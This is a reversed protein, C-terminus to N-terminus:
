QQRELQKLLKGSDILGSLAKIRALVEAYLDEYYVFHNHQCEDPNHFHNVCRLIPQKGTKVPKMM